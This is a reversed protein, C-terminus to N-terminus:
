KGTSLWIRIKKITEVGKLSSVMGVLMGATMKRPFAILPLTQGNVFLSLRESQPKIFGDEIFDALGTIDGM